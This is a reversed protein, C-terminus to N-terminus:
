EQLFKGSLSDVLKLKQNNEMVQLVHEAEHATQEASSSLATTARMSDNLQQSSVGTLILMCMM